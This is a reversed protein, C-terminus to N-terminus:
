MKYRISSAFKMRLNAASTAGATRSSTEVSRARAAQCRPPGGLRDDPPYESVTSLLVLYSARGSAFRMRGFVIATAATRPVAGAGTTGLRPTLSFGVVRTM